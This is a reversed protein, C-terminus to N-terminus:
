RVKRYNGRYVQLQGHHKHTATFCQRCLRVAHEDEEPPFVKCNRDCGGRTRVICLHTGRAKFKAQEAPSALSWCRDCPGMSPHLHAEFQSTCIATHERKQFMEERRLPILNLSGLISAPSQPKHPLSSERSKARSDTELNPGLDAYVRRHSPTQYKRASQCQSALRAVRPLPTAKRSSAPISIKPTRDKSRSETALKSQSRSSEVRHPTSQDKHVHLGARLETQLTPALDPYVKHHLPTRPPRPTTLASRDPTSDRSRMNSEATIAPGSPLSSSSSPLPPTHRLRGKMELYTTSLSSRESPTTHVPSTKLHAMADIYLEPAFTRLRLPSGERSFDNRGDHSGSLSSVTSYRGVPSDCEDRSAGNEKESGVYNDEDDVSNPKRVSTMTGWLQICDELKSTLDDSNKTLLPPDEIEVSKDESNAESPTGIDTQRPPDSGNSDESVFQLAPANTDLADDREDFAPEPSKKDTLRGFLMQRPSSPKQEASRHDILTSSHLKYTAAHEGGPGKVYDSLQESRLDEPPLEAYRPDETGALQSQISSTESIGEAGTNEVDPSDHRLLPAPELCGSLASAVVEELLDDVGTKGPAPDNQQLLAAPELCGSIVSAVVEEAQAPASPITQMTHQEPTPNQSALCAEYSDPGPTSMNKFLVGTPHMAMEALTYELSRSPGPVEYEDSITQRTRFPAQDALDFRGSQDFSVDESMSDGSLLGHDIQSPGVKSVAPETLEFASSVNPDSIQEAEVKNQSALWEEYSDEPSAVHEAVSYELSGAPAIFGPSDQLPIDNSGALPSSAHTPSCFPSSIAVSAVESVASLSSPLDSRPLLETEEEDARDGVVDAVIEEARSIELGPTHPSSDMEVHQETEDMAIQTSPAISSPGSPTTESALWREYSGASADTSAISSSGAPAIFEPSDQLPIDNSGAQPSSAYTPSCLPSSIAVSAVELVAFVSSPLDSRPLLETEEEDARDGVVDAVIEEARSIELGPTSPLLDMEVQQETEDMPILQTPTYISGPGSPTTESALWREYSGASADTSAISTFPMDTNQSAGIPISQRLPSSVNAYDLNLNEDLEDALPPVDHYNRGEGLRSDERRFATDVPSPQSDIAELFEALVCPKTATGPTQPIPDITEQFNMPISRYAPSLPSQPPVNIADHYEVSDPSQSRASEGKPSELTNTVRIGDDITTDLEADFFDGDDPSSSSEEGENEAIRRKKQDSGVEMAKRKPRIFPSKTFDDDRYGSLIQISAARRWQRDNQDDEFVIEEEEEDYYMLEQPDRQFCPRTFLFQDESYVQIEEAKKRNSGKICLISERRTKLLEKMVERYKLFENSTRGSINEINSM